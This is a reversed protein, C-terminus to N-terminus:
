NPMDSIVDPSHYALFQLIRGDPLRPKVANVRDCLTQLDRSLQRDNFPRLSVVQRDPYDVIHGPLRFFPALRQWTAQAYSEPFFHDRTWMILNTLALRFTTMLQDKRDDLEYMQRAETQLDEILRLLQREKLAYTKAKRWEHNSNDLAKRAKQWLLDLEADIDAQQAKLQRQTQRDLRQQAELAFRHDNLQRYLHESRAKAKEWRRNYLKSARRSRELAKLRWRQVNDRQRTLAALRKTVESNEVATKTYGHNTDFGLPLLFDRIINEQASWRRKYFHSLDASEEFPRTSVVPIM